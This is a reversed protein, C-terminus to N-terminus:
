VEECPTDANKIQGTEDKQTLVLISSEREQSKRDKRSM